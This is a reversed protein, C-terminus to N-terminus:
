DPRVANGAPPAAGHWAGHRQQLHENLQAQLEVLKTKQDANLVGFMQSRLRSAALVFQAALESSSESVNTVIATYNPDDPRTSMLLEANAQLQKHLQEFGPRAQELCGKMNQRQETSLGLRDAMQELRHPAMLGPIMFGIGADGHGGHAQPEAPPPGDAQQTAAWAAAALLAAGVIGALGGLISRHQM